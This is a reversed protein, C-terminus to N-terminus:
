MEGIVTLTQEKTEASMSGGVLPVTVRSLIHTEARTIMRITIPDYPELAPNVISQFDVNYPAGLKERLLANATNQAQETTTIFESNYFRPVKGFPGEWYTYSNPNNDYAVARPPAATDLAEGTVVVANYLGDSTIERAMSILIGGEGTNVEWVPNAPDPPDEIVLFGRYDWYWIKGLSTVLDNLFKFRDEEVILTRGLADDDTDDDWEITALPYADLVLFDVVDGYTNLPGFQMPAVLRAKVISGMRDQGSIRIPGDPPEDQAVTNIRFYGLSVWEVSGGSFRVGRRIFLENALYPSLISFANTPFLGVGNVTLEVTARVEATADMEVDGSIVELETGSPNVGSEGSETVLVQTVASHSGRLTTRYRNSIPRM